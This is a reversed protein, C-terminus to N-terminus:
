GLGIGSAGMVNDSFLMASPRKLAASKLIPRWVGGHVEDDTAISLGSAPILEAPEALAEVKLGEIDWLVGGCVSHPIFAITEGFITLIGASYISSRFPGLDGADLSAVSWVEWAHDSVPRALLDAAGRDAIAQSSLPLRGAEQFTPTGGELGDLAGWVLAGPTNRDGRLALLLVTTDGQTVSALGEIQEHKPTEADDAPPPFPRFVGLYQASASAGGGYGFKVIRGFDGYEPYFGSEVALYEGQRKPIACVGELDNAPDEDSPWNNIGVQRYSPGEATVDVVGLRPETKKKGDHVVLFQNGAVKVMGSIGPLLTQAM